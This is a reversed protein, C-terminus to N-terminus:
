QRDYVYMRPPEPFWFTQSTYLLSIVQNFRPRLRADDHMRRLRPVYGSANFLLSAVLV